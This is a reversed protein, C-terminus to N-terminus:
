QIAARSEVPGSSKASDDRVRQPPAAHPPEPMEVTKIPLEPPLQFLQVIARALHVTEHPQETGNGPAQGTLQSVPAHLIKGILRHTMKRIADCQAESLSPHTALLEDVELRGMTRFHDYLARVVPGTNRTAFWQMFDRVHTAIVARSQDVQDGRNRRNAQATNELDDINYLYVNKIRSVSEEVDRPVAIDVMVLPRYHRPRMLSRVREASIIPERSGTSTLVIDAEVLLDSLNAFDATELSFQEALHRGSEATRNTVLIRGPKVTQMQRLMLEAMKGAGVVLVVKDDFRDFVDHLLDVAVSAISVRGGGLETREHVEKAASFAKQFLGHLIPGVSEAEKALQYAQKVQALIQTEGLVMSDLSGAVSFLHEVAAQGALHYTHSALTNVEMAHQSALFAILIEPGCLSATPTQAPCGGGTRVERMAAYIEVRNCTSVIVAELHPMRVHFDRLAAMTQAHNFAVSERVHVPASKHNLGVVLLPPIATNIPETM